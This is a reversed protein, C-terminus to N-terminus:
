MAKSGFLTVGVKSLAKFRFGWGCLTPWGEVSDVGVRTGPQLVATFSTITTGASLGPSDSSTTTTTAGSASNSGRSCCNMLAVATGVMVDPPQAICGVQSSEVAPLLWSIRAPVKGPATATLDSAAVSGLACTTTSSGNHSICVCTCSSTLHLLVGVRGCHEYRAPSYFLEPVAFANRARDAATLAAEVDPATAAKILVASDIFPLKLIGEWDYRKGDM